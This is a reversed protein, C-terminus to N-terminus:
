KNTDEASCLAPWPMRARSSGVGQRVTESADCCNCPRIDLACFLIEEHERSPSCFARIAHSHSQQLVLRRVNHREVSCSVDPSWVDRDLGGKASDNASASAAFPLACQQSFTRLAPRRLRIRLNPAAHKSAVLRRALRASISAEIWQEVLDRLQKRVNSIHNLRSLEYSELGVQSCATLYDFPPPIRRM